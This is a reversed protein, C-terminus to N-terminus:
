TSVLCWVCSVFLGARRLGPGLFCQVLSHLETGRTQTSGAGPGSSVLSCLLSLRSCSQFHLLPSHFLSLLVSSLVIIQLYHHPLFFAYISVFVRCMGLLHFFCGVFTLFFFHKPLAFNPPTLPLLVSFSPVLSLFSFVYMLSDLCFCFNLSIFEIPFVRLCFWTSLWCFSLLIQM